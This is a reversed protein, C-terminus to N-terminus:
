SLEIKRVEARQKALTEFAENDGRRWIKKTKERVGKRKDEEGKTKKVGVIASFRDGHSTSETQRGTHSGGGGKGRIEAGGGGGGVYAWDRECVFM